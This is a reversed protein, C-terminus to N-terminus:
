WYIIVLFDIEHVNRGREGGLKIMELGQVILVNEDQRSKFHSQLADYVDRELLDGETQKIDGQLNKDDTFQDLHLIFFCPLYDCNILYNDM